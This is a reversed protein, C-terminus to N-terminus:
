SLLPQSSIWGGSVFVLPTSVAASSSAVWGLLEFYLSTQKSLHKAVCKAAPHRCKRTLHGNQKGGCANKQPSSVANNTLFNWTLSASKKPRVSLGACHCRIHDCFTHGCIKVHLINLTFIVPISHISCKSKPEVIWSKFKSSQEREPPNVWNQTRPVWHASHQLSATRLSYAAKRTFSTPNMKPKNGAAPQALGLKCFRAQEVCPPCIRAGTDPLPLRWLLMSDLHWHLHLPPLIGKDPKPPRKLGIIKCNASVCKM